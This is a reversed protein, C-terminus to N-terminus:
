FIKLGVGCASKEFLLLHDLFCSLARLYSRNYLTSIGEREIFRGGTSLFIEFFSNKHAKKMEKNSLIFSPPSEQKGCCKAFM